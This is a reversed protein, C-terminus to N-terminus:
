KKSKSYIERLSKYVSSHLITAHNEDPLSAQHVDFGKKSKLIEALKQADGEMVKGENGVSIYASIKKPTDPANGVKALLSEHDWWLSPSVILYTDFLDPQQTLVECLLLGGLSQGIITGEGSTRYNSKIFPKHEQKIFDNFKASSGTTPYDKKDQAITTPFTFDRRRDVNAIGAVITKPMLDSMVLFQVLGAIHIFDENASGDLVYLVPYASQSKSYDEPLYLNLIRDEGLIKSHLTTTRGLVFDKEQAYAALLSFLILLLAFKKMM